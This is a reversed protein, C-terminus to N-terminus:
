QSNRYLYGDLIVGIRGNFGSPTAVAAPWNLTVSFNQTAILRIPPQVAYPRGGFRASAAMLEGVTASNSAVAASLQLGAKPPFRGIPAETLYSKSGIFLNLYGTQRIANVDNIAGGVTAAAAANFAILNQLTFTAATNVSGPEFAVEISELLFNQPAPLSGAMTMNTDALTKPSGAVAGSSSTAGQGQPTQFFSIQTTGATAYVAYDYLSQRIGEVQGARNVDFRSLEALSPIQNM